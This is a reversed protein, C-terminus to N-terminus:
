KGEALGTATVSFGTNSISCIYLNGQFITLNKGPLPHRPTQVAVSKKQWQIKGSRCFVPNEKRFVAVLGSTSFQKVQAASVKQLIANDDIAFVAHSNGIWLKSDDIFIRNILQYRRLNGQLPIERPFGISKRFLGKNLDFFELRSDVTNLFIAEDDRVVFDDGVYEGRGISQLKIKRLLEGDSDFEAISRDAMDYLYLYDESAAIAAITMLDGSETRKLEFQDGFAQNILTDTASQASGHFFVLQLVASIASLFVPINTKM